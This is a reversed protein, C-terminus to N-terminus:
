FIKMMWVCNRFPPRNEHVRGDGQAQVAHTHDGSPLNGSLVAPDHYTHLKDSQYWPKREIITNTGALDPETGSSPIDVNVRGNYVPTHQVLGFNGNTHTHYTSSPGSVTHQHAPINRIALAVSPKPRESYPYISTYSQDSRSAKKACRVFSRMYFNITGFTTPGLYNSITNIVINSGSYSFGSVIAVHNVDPCSIEQGLFVYEAASRPVIIINNNGVIQGAISFQNRQINDAYAKGNLNPVRKGFLPSQTNTIIQGDCRQWGTPVPPYSHSYFFFPMITGVPYTGGGAFGGLLATTNTSWSIGNPIWQLIGNTQLALPILSSNQTGSLQSIIKPLNALTYKVLRQGSTSVDLNITAVGSVEPTSEIINRNIEICLVENNLIKLYSGNTNGPTGINMGSQGTFRIQIVRGNSSPTAILMRVIIRNNNPVFIESSSSNWTITGSSLLLLNTHLFADSIMRRLQESATIGDQNQGIDLALDGKDIAIEDIKVAGQNSQTM